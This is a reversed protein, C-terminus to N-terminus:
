VLFLSPSIPFLEPFGNLNIENSLDAKIRILNTYSFPLNRTVTSFSIFVRLFTM